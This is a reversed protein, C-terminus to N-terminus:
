SSVDIWAARDGDYRKVLRAPNGVVVSRALVDSTVVAGAGVYAQEGVTVGPMLLAGLGIYSGRGVTIKEPPAMPQDIVPTTVDEYQHFTDGILVREGMLVHDEIEITGVCAIHCLRDIHTGDGITLKPVHGDVAAVVSIWAHEHIVVGDGIEIVEPMTVRAPPVIISGDGFAAFARPPPPTLTRATVASLMRARREDAMRRRVARYRLHRLRDLRSV